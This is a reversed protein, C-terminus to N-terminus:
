FPNFVELYCPLPLVDSIEVRWDLFMSIILLISQFYLFIYHAVFLCFYVVFIGGAKKLESNFESNLRLSNTTEEKQNRSLVVLSKLFSLLM